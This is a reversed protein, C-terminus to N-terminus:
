ECGKARGAGNHMVDKYPRKEIIKERPFRAYAANSVSLVPQSGRRPPVAVM